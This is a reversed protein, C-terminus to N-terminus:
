PFLIVNRTHWPFFDFFGDGLSDYSGDSNNPLILPDAPPIPSRDDLDFDIYRTFNRVLMLTLNDNLTQVGLVGKSFSSDLGERGAPSGLGTQPRIVSTWPNKATELYQNGILILGNSGTAM